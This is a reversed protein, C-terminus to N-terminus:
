TQRKNWVLGPFNVNKHNLLIFWRLVFFFFVLAFISCVFQHVHLVCLPQSFYNCCMIIECKIIRMLACFWTAARSSGDHVITAIEFTTARKASLFIVLKSPVGSPSPSLPLFTSRGTQGFNSTGRVNKPSCLSCFELCASSCAISCACCGCCCCCSRNWWFHAPSSQSYSRLPYECWDIIHHASTQTSTQKDDIRRGLLVDCCTTGPWWASPCVSLCVSLCSLRVADSQSVSVVSVFPLSLSLSLSIRAVPRLEKKPSKPPELFKLLQM